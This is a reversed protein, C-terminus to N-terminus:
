QPTAVFRALPHGNADLLSLTSGSVKWERVKDLTDILADETQMGRCAMMTRAVGPFRLHDGALEYGGTMRNCGGSGSMRHRAPDLEIYAAHQSPVPEITTGPMWTLKWYTAELPTATTATQAHLLCCGAAFIGALVCVLQRRVTM